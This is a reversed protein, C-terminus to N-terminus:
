LQSRQRQQGAKIMAMSRKHDLAAVVAELLEVETSAERVRVTFKLVSPACSVKTKIDWESTALYNEDEERAPDRDHVRIAQDTMAKEHELADQASLLRNRANALLTRWFLYQESSEAIMEDVSDGTLRIEKAIDFKSLRGEVSIKLYKLESAARLKKVSRYKTTQKSVSKGYTARKKRNKSKM